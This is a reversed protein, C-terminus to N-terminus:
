ALVKLLYHYCCGVGSYGGDSFTILAMSGFLLCTELSEFFLFFFFVRGILTQCLWCGRSALCLVMNTLKFHNCIWSSSCDPTSNCKFHCLYCVLHSRPCRFTVFYGLCRNYVCYIETSLKGTVASTMTSLSCATPVTSTASSSSPGLIFFM